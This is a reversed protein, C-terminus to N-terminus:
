SGMTVGPLVDTCLGGLGLSLSDIQFKYFHKVTQKRGNQSDISGIVYM